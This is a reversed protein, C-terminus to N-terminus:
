LYNQLYDSLSERWSPLPAIGLNWTESCDLVSYEPRTAAADWERATVPQIVDPDILKEEAVARAYAYWSCQGANTLHWTGAAEDLLAMDILRPALEPSYTPAGTQDRVVRPAKGEDLLGAIAKVFNRGGPGFLWSTRVIVH